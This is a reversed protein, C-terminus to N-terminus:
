KRIVIDLGYFDARKQTLPTGTIVIRTNSGATYNKFYLDALNVPLPITYVDGAIVDAVTCSNTGFYCSADYVWIDAFELWIDPGPAVQFLNDDTATATWEEFSRLKNM